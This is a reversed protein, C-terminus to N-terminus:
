SRAGTAKVQVKAYPAVNAAITNGKVLVQGIRHSAEAIRQKDSPRKYRGCM